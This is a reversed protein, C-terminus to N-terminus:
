LRSGGSWAVAKYKLTRNRYRHLKSGGGRTATHRVDGAGPTGPM